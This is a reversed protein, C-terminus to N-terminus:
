IDLRSMKWIFLKDPDVVIYEEYRFRARSRKVGTIEQFKRDIIHSPEDPYEDFIENWQRVMSNYEDLNDDPDITYRINGPKKM